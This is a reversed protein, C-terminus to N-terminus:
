WCPDELTDTNIVWLRMMFMVMFIASIEMGTHISM